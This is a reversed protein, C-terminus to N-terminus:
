QFDESRHPWAPLLEWLQHESIVDDHSSYVYIMEDRAFEIIWDRCGGCPAYFHPKDSAIALACIKHKRDHMLMNIIANVEAHICNDRLWTEVNASKHINGEEDLIACGVSVGSYPCIAMEQAMKAKELLLDNM